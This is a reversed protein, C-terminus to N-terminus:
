GGTFNPPRKELFSDVAEGHDDTTHALAQYAASLELIDSMRSHQAERLLRKTLRLARAPNAAIREAIEISTDLLDGDPVVRGVLGFSKAEQASYRDGTLFMEAAQSYGVVRQLSWAGGDGPVIGVKIFSASFKASEAAVRIDCLCALDCGLGVAHGNVAAILPVECDMFARTIRQVGRRYNSRTEDPKGRPGIGSKEKMAKINGGASFGKGSGTLIACSINSDEGIAHLAAIVDECDEQTGIANLTEPSNLTMIAIKGRTELKVFDGM